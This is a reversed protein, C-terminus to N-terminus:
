FIQFDLHLSTLLLLDWSDIWYCGCTSATQQLTTSKTLSCEWWLEWILIPSYCAMLYRQLAGSTSSMPMQGAQSSDAFMCLSVLDDHISGIVVVLIPPWILCFHYSRTIWFNIAIASNISQHDFINIATISIISQHNFINVAMTTIISQQNLIIAAKTWFTISYWSQHNSHNFFLNTDSLSWGSISSGSQRNNHDLFQSATSNLFTYTNLTPYNVYKLM